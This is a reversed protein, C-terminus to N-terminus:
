VFLSMQPDVECVECARLVFARAKQIAQDLNGRFVDTVSSDIVDGTCVILDIAGALGALDALATSFPPSNWNTDATFHLDSLHLIVTEGSHKPKVEIPGDIWRDSAPNAM